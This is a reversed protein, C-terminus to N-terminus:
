VCVGMIECAHIYISMLHAFATGFNQGHCLAMANQQQFFVSDANKGAVPMAMNGQCRHGGNTLHTDYSPTVSRKDEKKFLNKKEIIRQKSEESDSASRFTQLTIIAATKRRIFDRWSMAAEQSVIRGQKWKLATHVGAQM